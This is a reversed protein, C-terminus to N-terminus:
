RNLACGTYKPNIPAVRAHPWGNPNTSGFRKECSELAQEPACDVCRQSRPDWCMPKKLTQCVNCMRYDNARKYYANCVQPGCTDECETPNPYWYIAPPYNPINFGYGSDTEYSSPRPNVYVLPVQQRRVSYPYEMTGYHRYNPNNIDSQYATDYVSDWPWNAQPLRSTMYPYGYVWSADRVPLNSNPAQAYSSFM